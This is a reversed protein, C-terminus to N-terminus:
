KDEPELETGKVFKGDPNNKGFKKCWDCSM